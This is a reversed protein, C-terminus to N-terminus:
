IESWDYRAFGPTERDLAKCFCIFDELFKSAEAGRPVQVLGTLTLEYTEHPPNGDRSLLIPVCEDLVQDVVEAPFACLVSRVVRGRVPKGDTFQKDAVVRLVQRQRDTPTAEEETPRRGTV